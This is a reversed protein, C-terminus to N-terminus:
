SSFSHTLALTIILIYLAQPDGSDLIVFSRQTAIHSYPNVSFLYVITTFILNLKLYIMDM